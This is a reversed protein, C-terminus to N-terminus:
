GSETVYRALLTKSSAAFKFTLKADTGEGEQSELLGEGFKPHQFKRAPPAAARRRHVSDGEAEDGTPGLM